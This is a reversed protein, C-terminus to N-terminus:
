CGYEAVLKDRTEANYEGTPEIESRKQFQAIAVRTPDDMEGTLELKHGLNRLRQQVGHASDSPDIRAFNLPYADRTEGVYLVGQRADTPIPEELGGNDDLVGKRTEGKIVLEYVEGARPEDGILLRYRLM